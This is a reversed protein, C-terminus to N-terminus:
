PQEGLKGGLDKLVLLVLNITNKLDDLDVIAHASHIYRSPVSITISPIGYRM